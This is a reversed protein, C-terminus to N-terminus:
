APEGATSSGHRGALDKGRRYLARRLELPEFVEVGPVPLLQATAVELSETVLDVDLRDGSRRASTLGEETGMGPVAARLTDAASVPISLRVQLTYISAEFATRAQEWYESLSFHAPRWAAEDHLSVRVMRSLRYTRLQRRHAAVLYWVDTKLVLGLPDLLRTVARGGSRAYEITLRRKDWVARAVAPLVEPRDPEAFWRENDIMFREQAPAVVAAQGSTSSLMKLRATQFDGALGLDRSGAEGIIVAQLEAATMGTIPSRWGDVLGVGGGPGTRTWIPVGMDILSAVDRQITRESVGHRTALHRVTSRSLRSLDMMLALLRTTRMRFCYAISSM